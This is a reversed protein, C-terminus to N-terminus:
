GQGVGLMKAGVGSGGGSGRRAAGSESQWLLVGFAGAGALSARLVINMPLVALLVAAAAGAGLLATRSGGMLVRVVFRLASEVGADMARRCRAYAAPVTFAVLYCLLWFTPQSMVRLEGLIMGLWLLSAVLASTIARRGSLLSASLVVLAAGYRAAGLAIPRLVQEVRQQLQLAAKHREADAQSQQSPGAARRGNPVGSSVDVLDDEEEEEEEIVVQGGVAQQARRYRALTERVANRLLLLFCFAFLATSPQLLEHGKVLQRACVALYLGAGFVRLTHWPHRWTLVDRVTQVAELSGAPLASDGGGGHDHVPAAGILADSARAHIKDIDDQEQGQEQEPERGGARAADASLAEDGAAAEGELTTPRAGGDSTSTSPAVKSPSGFWRWPSLGVQIANVVTGSVRLAAQATGGGADSYQPRHGQSSVREIVEVDDKSSALHKYFGTASTATFGCSCSYLM